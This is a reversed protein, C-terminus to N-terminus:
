HAGRGFLVTKITLLVIALDLGMSINNIYYLDYQLKEISGAVTDTYGHKLQAWGTIGPKVVHRQDYFPVERRLREVFFSREPRPGILDMDGKLVNFFQPLEDIRWRRLIRGVATIRGDNASAWLPGSHQEADQRMTRFKLLTFVHGDEGVREQRLLVPGPSGLKIAIAGVLMLPGLLLLAITCIAVSTVHKSLRYVSSARFGDSFLLWGPNLNEVPIKATIREYVDIGDEIRVGKSKLALLDYLPLNGRRDQVAVIIRKARSNRVIEALSQLPGLWRVGQMRDCVARGVYGVVELGLAPRGRIENGLSAALSCDGLIVVRQALKSSKVLLLFGERCLILVVFVLTLGLVFNRFGLRVSPFLHYIVGLVVTSWGLVQPIRALIERRSTIVLNDYLDLYYMCIAFVAAVLVVKAAGLAYVRVLSAGSGITFHAATTWFAITILVLESFGLLLIRRPVYMHLIRIM